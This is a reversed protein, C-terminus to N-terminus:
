NSAPVWARITKPQGTADNRVIEIWEGGPLTSGGGSVISAAKPKWQQQKSLTKKQYIIPTVSEFIHSAKPQQVKNPSKSRADRQPKVHAQAASQKVYNDIDELSMNKFKPNKKSLKERKDFLVSSSNPGRGSCIDFVNQKQKHETFKSISAMGLDVKVKPTKSQQPARHKRTEPRPTPGQLNPCNYSM